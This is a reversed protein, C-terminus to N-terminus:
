HQEESSQHWTLLTKRILEATETPKELPFMHGGSVQRHELQNARIFPKVLYPRCVTSGIATVLLGPSRLKGSYRNLNDPINRFIATEVDVDFHLRHYDGKLRISANVYDQICDPDMRAFLAKQQFYSVLDSDKEWQHCRGKALGAPTIRDILPTGKALKVFLRVPGTVIPPELLVIGKFLNPKQCAAIYTIVAGFSHGVGYVPTDCHQEIYNILEAVQNQWNASVPFHGSHGFQDVGKVKWEGPLYALLKQYSGLPFGNAHAFHVNLM